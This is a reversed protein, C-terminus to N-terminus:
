SLMEILFFDWGDPQGILEAGIVCHDEVLVENLAQKKPNEEGGGFCMFWM